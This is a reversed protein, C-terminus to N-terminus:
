AERWVDDIKTPTPPQITLKWGKANGPGLVVGAWIPLLADPPGKVEFTSSEGNRMMVKIIM